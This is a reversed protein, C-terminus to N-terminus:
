DHVLAELESFLDSIYSEKRDVSVFVGESRNIPLTFLLKDEYAQVSATPPGFHEFMDSLRWGSRNFALIPNHLFDMSLDEVLLSVDDRFYAPELGEDTYGIVARLDDEIAELCFETIREATESTM